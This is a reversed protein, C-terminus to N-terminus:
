LLKRNKNDLAVFPSTDGSVNVGGRTLFYLLNDKIFPHLNEPIVVFEKDGIGNPLQQAKNLELLLSPNDDNCRSIMCSGSVFNLPGAVHNHDSAGSRRVAVYQQNLRDLPSMILRGEGNDWSMAEATSLEALNNSRRGVGGETELYSGTLTTRLPQVTLSGSNGPMGSFLESSEVQYVGHSSSLPECFTVFIRKNYPYLSNDKESFTARMFQRFGVRGLIEPSEIKPASYTAMIKRKFKGKTM